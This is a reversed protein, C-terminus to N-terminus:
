PASLDAPPWTPTPRSLVTVVTTQPHHAVRAAGLSAVDVSGSSGESFLSALAIDAAQVSVAHEDDYVSQDSCDSCDSGADSDDSDESVLAVLSEIYLAARKGKRKDTRDKERKDKAAQRRPDVGPTKSDPCNKRLHTRDASPRACLDCLDHKGVTWVPPIYNDRDGGRRDREGGVIPDSGAAAHALAIAAQDFAADSQAAITARANGLTKGELKGLMIHIVSVTKELDSNAGAADLKMELKTALVGFDKVLDALITAVVPEPDHRGVKCMANLSDFNLRFHDFCVINSCALGAKILKQKENNAWTGTEADNANEEAYLIAVLKRFDGNSKKEYDEVAKVNSIYFLIRDHLMRNAATLM